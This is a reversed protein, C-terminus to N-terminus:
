IGSLLVDANQTAAGQRALELLETLEEELRSFCDNTLELPSLNAELNFRAIETTLRPDNAEKLVELSVAAPRLCRDVLFMEQEAGIRTVDGDLRGDELMFALARLDELLAKMFAHTQKEGALQECNHEGM